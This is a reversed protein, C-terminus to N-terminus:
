GPRRREAHARVSMIGLLRWDMGDGDIADPHVTRWNGVAGKAFEDLRGAVDGDRFNLGIWFIIGARQRMHQLRTRENETRGIM